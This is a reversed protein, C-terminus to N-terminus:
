LFYSNGFFYLMTDPLEVTNHTDHLDFNQPEQRANDLYVRISLKATNQWEGQIDVYNNEIYM